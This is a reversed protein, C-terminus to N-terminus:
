EGRGVRCASSAPVGEYSCVVYGPRDFGDEIRTFKSTEGVGLMETLETLQGNPRVAHLVRIPFSCRNRFAVSRRREADQNADEAAAGDDGDGHKVIRQACSSAV